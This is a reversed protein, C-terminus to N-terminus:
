NPAVSVPHSNLPKARTVNLAASFRGSVDLRAAFKLRTAVSNRRKSDNRSKQRKTAALFNLLDFPKPAVPM